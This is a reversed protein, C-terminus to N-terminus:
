VRFYNAKRLHEQSHSLYWNFTKELGESLPITPVFHMFEHAYSIDMVKERYSSTDSFNTNDYTFRFNQVKQLTQLLTDISVGVGSGVNIFNPPTHFAALIIGMAADTSYLFDRVQRGDGIVSVPNDGRAIKAILSPIVMANDPDFNDGPGYTNGLRIIAWKDVTFPNTIRYTEIQMEGILKAWGPFGDMPTEYKGQSFVSDESFTSQFKYAGISSTYVLRPIANLKAAELVNTNMMVVPVFFKAPRLNSMLPSGKVGALHFVFDFGRIVKKCLNFDFLDGKWYNVGLTPELDDMSISTVKSGWELLIRCVERGVLGTGGTVLINKNHFCEKIEPTIM